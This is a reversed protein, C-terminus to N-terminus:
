QLASKNDSGLKTIKEIVCGMRGKDNVVLKMFQVWKKYNKGNLKEVTLQLSSNDFGSSSITSFAKTEKNPIYSITESGHNSTYETM